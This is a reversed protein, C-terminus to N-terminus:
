GVVSTSEKVYRFHALLRIRIIVNLRTSSYALLQQEKVISLKIADVFLKFGLPTAVLYITSTCHKYTAVTYCLTGSERYKLDTFTVM